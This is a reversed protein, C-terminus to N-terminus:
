REARRNHNARRKQQKKHSRAVCRSKGARRVQRKGKPCRPKSTGKPPNGPGRFGSSAPTPDNPPAVAGQCAEGECAPPEIPQPFGGDVRADYLDILGPDQPLLSSSTTFFVDRGDPSAEWFESESPSEGSSILYLCGGNQAFYSASAESCRGTGPAEWEYVDPAGNTDRPLLADNSNFFLREGDASLVNSAHLPSEWTPIWAAAPVLTKNGSRVPRYPVRLEAVGPRAGSPNCSVCALGGGAEYAFVEVAPRGDPGTNDYGTLPARSEFAIRAGDASVRTARYYPIAESIDYALTRSDPELAGVDGAIVTAVFSVAGKEDLYLNPQGAKAEDGQSNKQGPALGDSSVFYIRSLDRSTGAVGKVDHAILRRPPEKAEYKALDFEYLDAKGGKLSGESYLAKSGDGAASWFTADANSASVALTCAIAAESCEGPVIGQVAHQRLYVKSDTTWYVRSGDTSVARDLNGRGVFGSGAESASGSAASGNPLVSVLHVEGGSSDYLQYNASKAAEESLKAAAAFIAQSGDASYGQVSHRYVYELPTGTPLEYKPSPVLAEFSGADVGCNERRYLNTYGPQGDATPPPTQHDVLWASCLDPTFAIFERLFGFVYAPDVSQGAVPPNIGQNSWGEGPEGREHRSALYQNFNFNSPSGAFSPNATYTLRNGDPSAQVRDGVDEDSTLERFIDGGNKDVPSVMEYARCDPLFASAATRFTQNPCDTDVATPRYTHLVHDEGESPHGAKESSSNAAVIRWHYTAGPTLGKLTIVVPHDSRDSGIAVEASSKGYSADAGYEFRYTTPFGEPNVRAKLSAETATADVTYDASIVPPGLTKFSRDPGKESTGAVKALLRYHYVTGRQLGSLGVHVPVPKTGEGISAASEACPAISGYSTTTGYQFRCESSLSGLPNVTGNLTASTEEIKSAAGTLAKFCGNPQTGYARVFDKTHFTGGGVNTVLLNGPAESGACLNAALGTSGDFEGEGFSAIVKGAPDFELIVDAPHGSTTPRIAYVNGAVDVAVATPISAAFDVNPLEFTEPALPVGASSIKHIGPGNAAYYLNGAADTALSRVTKGPLAIQSQFVGETDFRQIRNEDGVYVKDAPDIAIFSAVIPWRGFEGDAAGRSGGKCQDAPKCIEAGGGEAITTINNAPSISAKAEPAPPSSPAPATALNASLKVTDLGEFSGSAVVECQFVAPSALDAASLKYTPSQIPSQIRVGNRYWGYSFIDSEKDKWGAAAAACSLTQGGGGGVTLPASAEPAAIPGPHTPALTKPAPAIVQGPESVQVSGANANTATVLCQISKGKDAEKTVYTSATAGEITSGNRLWKFSITEAATPSSCKLTSGVGQTVTLQPVNDGSFKGEFSVTYPNSGSVSVSGGLGGITPLADLAAKVEAASANFPLSPTEQPLGPSLINPLGLRFSGSTASLTLEQEENNSSDDPGDFVVDGGWALQFEGARNFKQVRQNSPLGTDVAYVNGASDVAVGEPSGFQGAGTGESGAKCSDGREPECIEFGAGTNGPGSQAVDWGWTKVFEGLPNFEDIRNNGQDAVFVHGNNRDVAVGRPGETQGAGPGPEGGQWLLSPAAASAVSALLFVAAAILAVLAGGGAFRKAPKQETVRM